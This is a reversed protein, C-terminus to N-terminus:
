KGTLTPMSSTAIATMAIPAQLSSSRRAVTAGVMVETAVATGTNAEDKIEDLDLNTEDAM